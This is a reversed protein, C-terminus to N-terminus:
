EKANLSEGLAICDSILTPLNPHDFSIGPAPLRNDKLKPLDHLHHPFTLALAPNEPHPESDYWRVKDADRYITYSYRQIRANKFDLVELVRLELGNALFLSGQVMATLASVTYLSLTSRTIDPYADHLGYLFQEYDTKSLFAM